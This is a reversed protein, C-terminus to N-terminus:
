NVNVDVETITTDASFAITSTGTIVAGADNTLQATLTLTGAAVGNGTFTGDPNLSVNGVAANDAVLTLNQAKSIDLADGEADKFVLVGTFAGIKKTVNMPELIQINSFTYLFLLQERGHRQHHRHRPHPHGLLEEVIELEQDFAREAAQMIREIESKHM